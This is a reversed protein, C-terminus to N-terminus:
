CKMTALHGEAARGPCNRQAKGFRVPLHLAVIVHAVVTSVQIDRLLLNNDLMAAFPHYKIIRMTFHGM